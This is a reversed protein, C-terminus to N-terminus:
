RIKAKALAASAKAFLQNGASWDTNVQRFGSTDRSAIAAQAAAVCESAGKAYLGAGQMLIKWTAKPYRTPRVMARLAAVHAVQGQWTSQTQAMEYMSNSKVAAIQDEIVLKVQDNVQQVTPPAAKALATGALLTVCVVVFACCGFVKIM